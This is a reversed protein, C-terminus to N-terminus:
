TKELLWDLASCGRAHPGPGRLHGLLVTDACGADELADALLPMRDFARDEYISRAIRTAAGGNWTLWAPDIDTAVRPFICRFINAAHRYHEATTRPSQRQPAPQEGHRGDEPYPWEPLSLLQIAWEACLFGSLAPPHSHLFDEFARVSAAVNWDQARIFTEKWRRTFELAARREEPPAEGTALLESIRATTRALEPALIFEARACCAATFLWCRRFSAQGSDRVFTLMLWPDTSSLWEAETV